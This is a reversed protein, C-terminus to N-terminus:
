AAAATDRDSLPSEWGEHEGRAVVGALTGLAARPAIGIGAAEAVGSVEDEVVQGDALRVLRPAEEAIAPDHTILVVARGEDENLRRLLRLVEAGTSSDLNGTPEDALLVRPRNALARAIAVRQQEGGSLQGPLHGSRDGLGVTQLLETARAEREHRGMDTAALPVQVNESATLTPILNFQQFVFGFATLRLRTLEADGLRGLEDGEFRLSGSSPRDLGGLLQLMTTKGSGSPGAIVVMEGDAISLDVGRLAHVEAAADGYTRTVDSLEFM